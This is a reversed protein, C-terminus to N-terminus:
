HVVITGVMGTGSLSTHGGGSGFDISCYFRYTGPPLDIAAQSSTNVLDVSIVLRDSRSAVSTPIAGSADITLNHLVDSVGVLQVIDGFNIEISAPEFRLPGLSEDTSGSGAAEITVAAPALSPAVPTPSLNATTAGPSSCGAVAAVVLVAVFASWRRSAM